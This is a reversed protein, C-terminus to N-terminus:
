DRYLLGDVSVRGKLEDLETLMDSYRQFISADIERHPLMYLFVSRDAVAPNLNMRKALIQRAETEHERMFAMARELARIVKRATEPHEQVFRASIVAVGQPNRDLMEAYASGYLQRVGGRSLAIAITPEYAHVADVSGELLATLHNQPPMPVFTINSVDIGSDALFKRLLNTATSGPFVGIKKGALDQLGRLPSDEKVLLADFPAQRTISSVSFVRLRGPSQLEVALVPVASAEIFADLNGAVVGDVLQNSSAIQHTEVQVGEEIFYGKEEAIFLPLSATINLYGMRTTTPTEAPRKLVLVLVVAAVVLLVALGAILIKRRQNM